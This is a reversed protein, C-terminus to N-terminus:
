NINFRETGDEEEFCVALLSKDIDNKVELYVKKGYCEVFYLNYHREQGYATKFTQKKRQLKM